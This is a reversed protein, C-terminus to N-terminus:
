KIEGLRKLEFFMQEDTPVIRGTGTLQATLGFTAANRYRSVKEEAELIQEQITNVKEPDARLKASIEIYFKMRGSLEALQKEMDRVRDLGYDPDELNNRVKEQGTSAAEKIKNIQSLAEEASSFPDDTLGKVYGSIDGGIFPIAEFPLTEMFAGFIQNQSIGEQFSKERIERLAAERITEDSLGPFGEDVKGPFLDKFVDAKLMSTIGAAIGPGLIPFDPTEKTPTLERKQPTVEEFAGAQQLQQQAQAQQAQQQEFQLRERDLQAPTASPALFARAEPDYFGRGQEPFEKQFQLYEPTGEKLGGIGKSLEQLRIVAPSEAGKFDKQKTYTKRGKQTTELLTGGTLRTGLKTMEVKKQAIPRDAYVSTDEEEEEEKKKKKAAM